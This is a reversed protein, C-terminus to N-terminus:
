RGIIVQTGVPADDLLLVKHLQATLLQIQGWKPLLDAPVGMASVRRVAAPVIFRTLALDM